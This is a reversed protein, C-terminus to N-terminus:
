QRLQKLTELYDDVAERFARELGDVTNAQYTVLDRQIWLKGHLCKDDISVEATGRIGKHEFFNLM